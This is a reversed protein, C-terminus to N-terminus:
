GHATVEILRECDPVVIGDFSDSLADASAARRDPLWQRRVDRCYVKL